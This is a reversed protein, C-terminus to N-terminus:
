QQQIEHNNNYNSSGHNSQCKSLIEQATWKRRKKEIPEEAVIQIGLDNFDIYTCFSKYSPLDDLEGNVVHNLSNVAARTDNSAISDVISVDGKYKISEDLQGNSTELPGLPLFKGADDLDAIQIAHAIGVHTRDAFGNSAFPNSAHNSSFTNHNHLSNQHNAQIVKDEHDYFYRLTALDEFSSGNLNSKTEDEYFYLPAFLNEPKPSSFARFRLIRVAVRRISEACPLSLWWDLPSSRSEDFTMDYPEERILYLKWQDFITHGDSEEPMFESAIDLIEEIASDKARQTMYACRHKPNLLYAAFLLKFEKISSLFRSIYRDILQYTTADSSRRWNEILSKGYKLFWDMYESLSLNTCITPSIVPTAQNIMSSNLGDNIQSGTPALAVIDQFSKLYVLASDLNEWFETSMVISKVEGLQPDRIPQTSTTNQNQQADSQSARTASSNNNNNDNNYFSFISASYAELTRTIPENNNKLYQFLYCILHSYWRNGDRKRNLAGSAGAFPGFKEINCNIQPRKNIYDILM